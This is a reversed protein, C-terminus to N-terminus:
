QGLGLWGVWSRRGSGSGNRVGRVGRIVDWIRCERKWDEDRVVSVMGDGDIWRVEDVDIEEWGSRKWGGGNCGGDGVM